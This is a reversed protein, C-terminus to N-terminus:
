WGEWSQYCVVFIGIM